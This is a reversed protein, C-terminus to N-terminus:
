PAFCVRYSSEASCMPLQDVPARGERVVVVGRFPRKGDDMLTGRYWHEGTALFVAQIEGERVVVEHADRHPDLEIRVRQGSPGRWRVREGVHVELRAPVARGASVEIVPEDVATAPAAGAVAVLVCGALHIVRHGWTRWM